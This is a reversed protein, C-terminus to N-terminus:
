SLAVQESPADMLENLTTRILPTRNYNDRVKDIEDDDMQSRYKMDIKNLWIMRARKTKFKMMYGQEDYDIYDITVMDIDDYTGVFIVVCKPQATTYYEIVKSSIYKQAIKNKKLWQIASGSLKKKPYRPVYYDENKGLWIRYEKRQKKEQLKDRIM